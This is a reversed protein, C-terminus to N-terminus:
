KEIELLLLGVLELFDKRYREKKESDKCIEKIETSEVETRMKGLKEKRVKKVISKSEEETFSKWNQSEEETLDETYIKLISWFKFFNVIIQITEEKRSNEKERMMEALEDDSGSQFMSFNSIYFNPEKELAYKIETSPFAMLFVTFLSSQVNPFIGNIVETLDKDFVANDDKKFIRERSWHLFEVLIIRSNRDDINKMSIKWEKPFYHEWIDYKSPSNDIENFLTPCFSAFLGKIFDFYKEKENEDEIKNLLKECEEIHKKFCTFLQYPGHNDKLLSKIVAQFFERGFYHWNWFPIRNPNKKKFIDLTWKIFSLLHKQSFFNKIGKETGYSTLWLREENWFMENWEFVKPLIENGISFSDRKEINELYAQSLQIAFEFKRFKIADDIHSIAIKTFERENFESKESWFSHWARMMKEAKANKKYRQIKSFSLKKM